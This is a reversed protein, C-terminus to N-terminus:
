SSSQMVNHEEVRRYHWWDFVLTFGLMFYFIRGTLKLIFSQDVLGHATVAVFMFLMAWNFPNEGHQRTKKVLYSFLLLCYVLYAGGGVTGATTFFYLFVNHPHVAGHEKALPHTYESDAWLSQWENLGIGVVPHDAWMYYSSEWMLFREEGMMRHANGWGLSVGYVVMVVIVAGALAGAYKKWAGPIQGYRQVRWVLFTVLLAVSLALYTGRVKIFILTLIELVILAVSLFFFYKEKRYYATAALTFPFFMDMMMAVRTGLSYFSTLRYEGLLFYKIIGYGCMVFMVAYLTYVVAKRIDYKGGVYLIMWFPVTYKLFGVLCYYGGSLNKMNDLHFLTTFFLAGYLLGMAWLLEHGPRLISLARDKWIMGIFFLFFVIMAISFGTDIYTYATVGWAIIVATADAWKQRYGVPEIM